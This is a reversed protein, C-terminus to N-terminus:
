FASTIAVIQGPNKIFKAASQEVQHLHHKLLIAIVDEPTLYTDFCTCSLLYRANLSARYLPLFNDCINQYRRQRKLAQERDGHNSTHQVTRDNSFVAEVIHIAKYFATTAIWPSNDAANDLLHVITKHTRNACALHDSETAM